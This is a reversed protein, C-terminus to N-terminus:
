VGVMFMIFEGSKLRHWDFDIGQLRQCSRLVVALHLHGQADQHLQVM